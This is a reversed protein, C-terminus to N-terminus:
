EVAKARIVLCSSNIGKVLNSILAVKIVKARFVLTQAAVALALGMLAPDQAAMRAM